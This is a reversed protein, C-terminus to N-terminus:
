QTKSVLAHDEIPALRTPSVDISAFWAMFAELEARTKPAYSWAFSLNKLEDLSTKFSQETLTSLNPIHFIFKRNRNLDLHQSIQAYPEASLHVYPIYELGSEHICAALSEDGYPDHLGILLGSAGLYKLADATQELATQPTSDNKELGVLIGHLADFVDGGVLEAKALLNASSSYSPDDRVAEKKKLTCFIKLKSDLNRSLWNSVARIALSDDRTADDDAMPALAHVYVGGNEHFQDLLASVGLPTTANWHELSLMMHM